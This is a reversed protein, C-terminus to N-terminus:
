QIAQCSSNQLLRQSEASTWSLYNRVYRVGWIPLLDQSSRRYRRRGRGSPCAVRRSVTCSCETIRVTHRAFARNKLPHFKWGAVPRELRYCDFRPFFAVVKASASRHLADGQTVGRARLGYRSHVSLLGRFYQHLLRGAQLVPFALTIANYVEQLLLLITRQGLAM